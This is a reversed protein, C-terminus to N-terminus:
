PALIAEQEPPWPAERCSSKVDQMGKFIETRGLYIAPDQLRNRKLTEIKKRRTGSSGEKRKNEGSSNDGEILKIYREGDEWQKNQDKIRCGRRGRDFKRELKEYERKQVVRRRKV